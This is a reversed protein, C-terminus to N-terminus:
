QIETVVEPNMIERRVIRGSRYATRLDVSGDGNRDEERLTLAGSPDFREFLDFRGNGTTDRDESVLRGDVYHFARDPRGDGNSDVELRELPDGGEAFILHLDPVGSGRRDEWVERRAGAAYAVWRDPRGDVGDEERLVPEAGGGTFYYRAVIGGDPAYLVRVELPEGGRERALRPGVGDPDGIEAPRLAAVTAASPAERDEDLVALTALLDDRRRQEDLLLREIQRRKQSTFDPAFSGAVAEEAEPHRAAVHALQSSLELSTEADMLISRADVDDPDVAVAARFHEVAAALQGSTMLHRGAALEQDIRRGLEPFLGRIARSSWRAHDTAPTELANRVAPRALVRELARAVTERRCGPEPGPRDVTERVEGAAEVGRGAGVATAARLWAVAFAGDKLTESCFARDVRLSLVARADQDVIWARAEDVSSARRHVVRADPLRVALRQVLVEAEPGDPWWEPARGRRVAQEPPELLVVLLGVSSLELASDPLPPPPPDLLEAVRRHAAANEPEGLAELLDARLHQLEANDPSLELGRAAVRAAAELRGEDRLLRADHLLRRAYTDLAAESSQMQPLTQNVGAGCGVGFAVLAGAVAVARALRVLSDSRRVPHPTPARM